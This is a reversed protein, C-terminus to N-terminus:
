FRAARHHCSLKIKTWEDFETERTNVELKGAIRDLFMQTQSSKSKWSIEIASENFIKIHEPNVPEGAMVASKEKDNIIFSIETQDDKCFVTKKDLPQLQYYFYGFGTAAIVLIMFFFLLLASGQGM